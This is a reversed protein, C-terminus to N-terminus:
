RLGIGDPNRPEQHLLHISLGYRRVWSRDNEDVHRNWHGALRIGTEAGLETLLMQIKKPTPKHGANTALFPQADDAVGDIQLWLRQARLIPRARVPVHVRRGAVTASAGDKAVDAMATAALARGGAGSLAGLLGIAAERPTQQECLAAIDESSLTQPAQTSRLDIQRENVLLLCDALFYAVQAGRLRTM